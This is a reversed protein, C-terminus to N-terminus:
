DSITDIDIGLELRKNITQIMQLIQDYRKDKIINAM